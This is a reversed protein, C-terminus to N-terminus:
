VQSMEARERIYISVFVLTISVPANRLGPLKCVPEATHTVQRAEARLPRPLVVERDAQGLHPM